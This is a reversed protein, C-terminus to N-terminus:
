SRLLAPLLEAHVMTLHQIPRTMAVYLLRLGRADTGAIAAPEVVVVADFELGKSGRADVVTIPRAMADRELLGIDPRGKVLAAMPALHESAMVLGVLFGEAALMEAEAVGQAFLRDPDTMVIRPDRTGPRISHTPAVTPAAVKLLKSALDLVRGPARYGLTLEHRVVVATTPLNALIEDWSQYGWPSTAQALDGLVTISGSPGRRALMRFQMPSLDQAEDVVIHGYTRSRGSVLADAEDLLALDDVMWANAGLRQGKRRLLHPWETPLLIGDAAAELRGADSLLESVLAAPSISPWLRNLLTGFGESSTLEREFWPEDAELHGSARVQQRALSVLRSRLALRAAKYPAPRAAITDCLGNVLAASLTCRTFRARLTVEEDDGLAGRRQHLSRALVQAMRADGKLQRAAVDDEGRVKVKPAIDTV